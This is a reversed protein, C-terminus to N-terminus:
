VHTKPNFGGVKVDEKLVQSIRKELSDKNRIYAKTLFLFGGKRRTMRREEDQERKPPYDGKGPKPGEGWSGFEQMHAYKVNSGVAVVLGPPGAPPNIADKPETPTGKATADGSKAITISNRLRGTQIPIKGKEM